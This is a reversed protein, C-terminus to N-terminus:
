IGTGQVPKGSDFGLRGILANRMYRYIDVFPTECIGTLYGCLSSRMKNDPVSASLV